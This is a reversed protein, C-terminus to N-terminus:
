VNGLNIVVVKNPGIYEWDDNYLEEGDGLELESIESGDVGSYGNSDYPSDIEISNIPVKYKYDTPDICSGIVETEPDFQNLTEILEKVTM